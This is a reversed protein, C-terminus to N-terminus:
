GDPWTAGDALAAQEIHQLTEDTRRDAVMAELADSITPAWVRRVVAVRSGDAEFEAWDLAVLDRRADAPALSNDRGGLITVKASWGHPCLEDMMARSRLEAGAASRLHRRSAYRARLRRRARPVLRSLVVLLLGGGVAALLLSFLPELLNVSGPHLGAEFQAMFALVVM